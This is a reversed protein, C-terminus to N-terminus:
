CHLRNEGIKPRAVFGEARRVSGQAIEPNNETAALMADEDEFVAGGNGM